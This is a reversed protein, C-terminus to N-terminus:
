YKVMKTPVPRSYKIKADEVDKYIGIKTGLLM